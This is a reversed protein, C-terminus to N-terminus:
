KAATKQAHEAVFPAFVKKLCTSNSHEADIYMEKTCGIDHPNYSGLVKLGHRSAIDDIMKEIRILGEKYPTGEVADYYVPNFPPKILSVTVGKEKLFDLTKEFAALGNEDVVPPTNRRFEVFSETEKMMREQSFLKMHKRSWVISGDPLLTDLTDFQKEASAHPRETANHWRTLNEFLMPLSVLARIRDYPLTKWMPQADIGLRKTMERYSPIGPEWLFDKRREVPTFQNERIAIILHKPLRDHKAFLNVMGLLDEWYDRHIHANFFDVGPAITKADGEQWHSAGMLIVDPTRTWRKVQGERWARINLNLDFVAYNLGKAHAEAAPEMGVYGYMEPGYARNGKWVSMTGFATVAAFAAVYALSSMKFSRKTAPAPKIAPTAAEMAEVVPAAPAKPEVVGNSVRLAQRLRSIVEDTSVAGSSQEVVGDV